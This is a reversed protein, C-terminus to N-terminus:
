YYMYEDSLAFSFYVIEPRINPNSSIYNKFWTTEAETPNRILFRNYTETIFAELDANMEAETPLYVGPKNMFNSILVERALEFDGVSEIAISIEYVSSPALAEQFLNTYLISVYQEITKLKDKGPSPPLLTVNNLEFFREPEKKCGM